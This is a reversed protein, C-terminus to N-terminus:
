EAQILNTTRPNAAPRPGNSNLNKNSNSGNDNIQRDNRNSWSNSPRNFRNNQTPQYNNRNSNRNNANPNNWCEKAVHGKKHCYFCTPINSNQNPQIHRIMPPLRCQHALHNLKNCNTCRKIGSNNYYQKTSMEQRSKIEQEESIAISVADEFTSPKQSKLLIHLQPLLGSIFINLAQRKLLEINAERAEKTLKADLSKILKIYCNEVRSSYKSISENQGQRCSNLELQWQAFTRKESYNELLHEKLSEWSTFSRNLLTSRINGEIKSLVVSVFAIKYIPNLLVFANNCNDIFVHLNAKDGDYKNIMREALSIDIFGNSVKDESSYM